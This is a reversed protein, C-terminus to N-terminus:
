VLLMLEPPQTSMTDPTDQSTHATLYLSCSCGLQSLKVSLPALGQSQLGSNGQLAKHKFPNLHPNNAKIRELPM